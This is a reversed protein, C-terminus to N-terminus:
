RIRKRRRKWVLIQVMRGVWERLSNGESVEM